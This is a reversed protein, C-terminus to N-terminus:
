EDSEGKIKDLVGKIMYFMPALEPHDHLSGVGKKPCTWFSDRDNIHELAEVAIALKDSLEAARLSYRMESKIARAYASYEIVHIGKPGTDYAELLDYELDKNLWYERPKSM